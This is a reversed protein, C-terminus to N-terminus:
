NLQLFFFNFLKWKLLVSWVKHVTLGPRHQLRIGDLASCLHDEKALNDM